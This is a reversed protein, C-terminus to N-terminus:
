ALVLHNNSAWMQSGVNRQTSSVSHSSAFSSWAPVLRRIQEFVEEAPANENETITAYGFGRG